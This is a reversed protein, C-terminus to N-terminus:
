VDDNNTSSEIINTMMWIRMITITIIMIDYWYLLWTINVTKAKKMMIRIMLMLMMIMIMMIMYIPSLMALIKAHEQNKRMRITLNVEKAAGQNREGGWCPMPLWRRAGRVIFDNAKARVRIAQIRFRNVAISSTFIIFTEGCMNACLVSPVRSMRSSSSGFNTYTQRNARRNMQGIISDTQGM